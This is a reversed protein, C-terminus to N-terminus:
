QMKKAKLTDIESVGEYYKGDLMDYLEDIEKMKIVKEADKNFNYVVECLMDSPSVKVLRCYNKFKEREERNIVFTYKADKKM